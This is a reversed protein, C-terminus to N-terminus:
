VSSKVINVSASAGIRDAGANIMEMTTEYDRIRGSAKVSMSDGVTDKMLKVHAATAGATSFGTSTKVFTAGANKSLQCAKIIESDSLLCTELIVKVISDHKKATTVVAAIDKEVEDYKGDKLFGVNIVMDIESAGDKCAIETEFSKVETPSAGLPFGVVSAVKVCSGDLRRAAMAVNCPNVCVSYFDYEKAEDCLKLVDAEVAEPKLITHDFYKNLDKM